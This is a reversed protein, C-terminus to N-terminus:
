FRFSLYLGGGGQNVVPAVVLRDTTKTNISHTIANRIPFYILYSLEVSLIGFGAGAVVDAIWHRNKYVRTGAVFAAIAYGSCALVPNSDKFEKFAIHAGLFANATHGSPFSYPAGDPRTQNIGKKLGHVMGANLGEALAVLFFQDVFTHKEKGMLDCVFVWGMMGWELYNDLQIHRISDKRTYLHYDGWGDIATGVVGATILTAPVILRTPKFKYSIDTTDAQAIPISLLLISLFLLFASQRNNKKM